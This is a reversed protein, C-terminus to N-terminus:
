VGRVRWIVHGDYVLTADLPRLGGSLLRRRQQRRRPASGGDEEAEQQQTPSPLTNQITPQEKVVDPTEIM